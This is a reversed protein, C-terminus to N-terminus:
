WMITLHSKNGQQKDMHTHLSAGSTCKMQWCRLLIMWSRWVLITKSPPDSTISLFATPFRVEPAEQLAKM